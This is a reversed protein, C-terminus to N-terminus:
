DKIRSVRVNVGLWIDTDRLCRQDDLDPYDINYHLGRTEQRNLASRVILGAVTSINRLEALDATFPSQLLYDRVERSVLDLRRRAANLRRNSRVIGVYNWMLRRIEDWDQSVMVNEATSSLTTSMMWTQPDPMTDGAKFDNTRAIVDAAARRGFVVAELLSNSALRNAGHLGTCAVEGIAYLGPVSTHGDLDTQVGGCMYHAAPVVPVPETRLDYGFRACAATLNPFRSEIFDPTRATMDLLVHDNGTMKMEHDIARSVIDRPALERLEHYDQMFPTGDVRRLVGGEGRLAESLLFSKARPHYLCTPHFQFFEMNAVRAGARFAMAVGDGTAVDPNSTYLYVKGAGGTALVVVGASVQILRGTNRDLLFAGGVRRRGSADERLWLDVGMANELFTIGPTERAKQLLARQIEDGTIDGAHFVRRRSHGGERTLDYDGDVESFRVGQSVLWDINGPASKVVLEVTDTHCLGAGAKLTDAVHMEFSDDAENVSAVGGQAYRTNSEGADVKTAVVVNMHRAVDIAFSLGGIGSGLVLCDTKM